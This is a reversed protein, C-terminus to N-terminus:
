EHSDSNETGGEAKLRGGKAPKPEKYDAVAFRHSSTSKFVTNTDKFVDQVVLKRTIINKGQRFQVAVVQDLVPDLALLHDLAHDSSKYLAKGREKQRVHRELLRELKGANLPAPRTKKALKKM